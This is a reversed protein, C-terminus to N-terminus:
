YSLLIMSIRVYNLPPLHLKRNTSHIVPRANQPYICGEWHKLPNEEYKEYEECTKCILTKAWKMDKVCKVNKM